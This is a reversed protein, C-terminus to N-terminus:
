PVQGVIREWGADILRRLEAATAEFAQRPQGIPDAVDWRGGALESLLLIRDAADPFEVTLASRQDATMVLILDATQADQALIERSRHPGLDLGQEAMVARANPVAPEGEQAWTGVSTVQLAGELGAAAARGRILAEAM